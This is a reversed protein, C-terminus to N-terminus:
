RVVCLSPNSILIGNAPDWTYGQWAVAFAQPVPPLPVPLVLSQTAPVIGAGIWVLTAPDLWIADAFGPVLVPQGPLAVALGAFWNAPARMQVQVPNGNAAVDVSPM